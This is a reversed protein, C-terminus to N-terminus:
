QRRGGGIWDLLVTEQAPALADAGTHTVLGNGKQFLLSASPSAPNTLPNTTRTLLAYDAANNSLTASSFVLTTGGALAGTVHCSACKAALIPKVDAAYSPGTPSPPPPPPPSPPPPPPLAVGGSNAIRRLVHAGNAMRVGVMTEAQSVSRLAGIELVGQPLTADDVWRGTADRYLLRGRSTGVYVTQDQECLALPAEGAFSVLVELREGDFHYVAGGAPVGTAPDFNAVSVILSLTNVVIMDTVRARGSGGLGLIKRWTAGSGRYVHAAGGQPGNDTLGVWVEGRYAIAATPVFSGIVAIDGVFNAGAASDMLSVTAPRKGIEGSFAYVEDGLAAIVAEAHPTDHIMQWAGSASRMYVDGGGPANENATAALVTTAISAFSSIDVVLSAEGRTLGNDISDIRGLPSHAVVLSSDTPAVNPPSIADITGGAVRNVHFFRTDWTYGAADRAALNLGSSVPSVSTMVGAVTSASGGGGGSGGGCGAAAAGLIVAGISTGIAASRVRM